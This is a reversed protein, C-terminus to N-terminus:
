AGIILQLEESDVGEAVANGGGFRVELIEWLADVVNAQAESRSRGQSLAGPVQPVSAVIWGDEGPEFVITLRITESM